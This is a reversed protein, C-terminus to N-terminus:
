EGRLKETDAELQAIHEDREEAELDAVLRRYEGVAHVYAELWQIRVKEKEADRVRGNTIKRLAEDKVESLEDIVDERKENVSYTPIEPNQM